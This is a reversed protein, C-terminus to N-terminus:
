RQNSSSAALTGVASRRATRQTPRSRSTVSVLRACSRRSCSATWSLRVPGAWGRATGRGGPSRRWARRRQLRQHPRRQQEDVDVLELADVGREAQDDAVAQQQGDGAPQAAVEARLVRQRADAAVLERQQQEALGVRALQGHQGLLHAARQARRDLMAPWSITSVAEIPMAARRRGRRPGPRAAARPRSRWTGRWARAAGVADLDEVGLHAGVLVAAHRELAVQALRMSFFCILSARGASRRGASRSARRSRPAAASPADAREAREVGRSKMGTASSDSRITM